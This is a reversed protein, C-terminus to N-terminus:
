KTLMKILTELTFDPTSKKAKPLADLIQNDTFPSLQKAARLHRKIAIQLQDKSLINPNRVDLYMAVINLDRRPSDELKKIEEKLSFVRQSKKDSYPLASSPYPLPFASSSIGVGGGRPLRNEDELEKIKLWIREPVLKKAKNIGEQTDKSGNQHYKEFNRIYIWGDFYIIKPILRPLITKELDREDIGSEFAAMSIDLEYIGCWSSHQNTLFYIFAYRDLANLKRVWGDSWFRTDISRMTTAM